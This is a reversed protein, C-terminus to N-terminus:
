EISSATINQRIQRPVSGNISLIPKSAASIGIIFSYIKIQENERNPIYRYLAKFSNKSACSITLKGFKIRTAASTKFKTSAYESTKPNQNIGASPTTPNASAASITLDNIPSTSSKYQMLITRNLFRNSVGNMFCSRLIPEGMPIAISNSNKPKLMIVIMTPLSDPRSAAVWLMM